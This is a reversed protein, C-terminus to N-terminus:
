AHTLTKPIVVTTSPQLNHSRLLSAFSEDATGYSLNLRKTSFEYDHYWREGHAIGTKVYEMKQVTTMESALIPQGYSGPPIPESQCRGNVKYQIVNWLDQDLEFDTAGEPLNGVLLCKPTDILKTM